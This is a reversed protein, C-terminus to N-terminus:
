LAHRDVMELSIIEGTLRLEASTVNQLILEAGRICLLGMGTEVLVCDGAFARLGRHPEVTVARMGSIRIEPLGASLDLPIASAGSLRALSNKVGKM